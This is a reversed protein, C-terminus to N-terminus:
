SVAIEKVVKVAKEKKPLVIRLEGNEYKADIQDVEV